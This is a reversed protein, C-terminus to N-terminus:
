AVKGAKIARVPKIRQFGDGKSAYRDKHKDYFKTIKFPSLEPDYKVVKNLMKDIDVGNNRLDDLPIHFRRKKLHQSPYFDLVTPDKKKEAVRSLKSFQEETLEPYTSLDWRCELLGDLIPVDIDDLTIILFQKREIDTWRDAEEIPRIAIIDGPEARREWGDVDYLYYKDTDWFEDTPKEVFDTVLRGSVRERLYFRPKYHGFLAASWQAM